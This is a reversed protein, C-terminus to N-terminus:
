RAPTDRLIDVLVQWQALTLGREPGQARIAGIFRRQWGSLHSSRTELAKVLTLSDLGRWRLLRNSAPHSRSGHPCSTSSPPPLSNGGECSGIFETWTLGARVILETAHKAAAARECEYPSRFMECLRAIKKRDLM